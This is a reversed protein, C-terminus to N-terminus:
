AHILNMGVLGEEKLIGVSEELWGLAEGDDKPVPYPSFTTLYVNKREFIALGQEIEALRERRGEGVGTEEGCVECECEFGWNERLAERRQDRLVVNLAVYSALIEEGAKIDRLAHITEKGLTPNFSNYVNRRCSHNIRSYDRFVGNGYRGNTDMQVNNTYYIAHMKFSDRVAAELGPPSYKAALTKRIHTKVGRPILDERSALDTYAAHQAPTLTSFHTALDKSTAGPPVILLPLEAILRTGAKIARTAFLGSGKSATILLEYPPSPDTTPDPAGNRPMTAEGTPDSSAKRKKDM